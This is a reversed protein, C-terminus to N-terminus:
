STNMPTASSTSPSGSTNMSITASVDRKEDSAQVPQLSKRQNQDNTMTTSIDDALRGKRLENLLTEVDVEGLETDLVLSSKNSTNDSDIDIDDSPLKSALSNDDMNEVVAAMVDFAGRTITRSLSTAKEKLGLDDLYRWMSKLYAEGTDDGYLSYVYRADQQQYFMAPTSSGLTTFPFPGYDCFISPQIFHKHSAWDDHISRNPQYFASPLAQPNITTLQPPDSFSQKVPLLTHLDNVGGIAHISGDPGYIVGSDTVKKKKKKKSQLRMPTMSRSSPDLSTERTPRESEARSGKRAPGDLGLIDVEEEKVTTANKQTQAIRQQQQQQQQQQWYQQQQNGLYTSFPSQHSRTATTTTAVPEQVLKEAREIAKIGYKELKDASKWYITDPANYLKANRVILLFDTRFDDMTKYDDNDIKRHLTSFDMPQKIVTLYDRVLSTDVPELFFGYADRKSLTDWLKFCTAKLGKGHDKTMAIGQLQHEQKLPQSVLPPVAASAISAKAQAKKTPRGRKKTAKSKIDKSSQKGTKGKTKSSTKNSSKSPRNASDVKSHLTTSTETPYVTNMDDLADDDYDDVYNDDEEIRQDDETYGEEEDEDYVTHEYTEGTDIDDNENEDQTDQELMAFPRKGGVPMHSYDPYKDDDDVSTNNSPHEYDDIDVLESHRRHQREDSDSHSNHKHKRQSRKKKRKHKRSANDDHNHSSSTSATPNLRLKLKIRPVAPASTRLPEDESLESINQDFFSTDPSASM